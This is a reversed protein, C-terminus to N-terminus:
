RVEAQGRGPVRSQDSAKPLSTGTRHKGHKGQQAGRVQVCSTRLVIGPVSLLPMLSLWPGWPGRGRGLDSTQPTARAPDPAKDTLTAEAIGPQLGLCPIRAPKESPPDCLLSSAPARPSPSTVLTLAAPVESCQHRGPAATDGDDIKAAGPGLGAGGAGGSRVVSPARPSPRSSLGSGGLGLRQRGSETAREEQNVWPGGLGRWRESGGRGVCPM